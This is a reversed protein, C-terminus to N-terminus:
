AEARLVPCTIAKTVGGLSAIRNDLADIDATRENKQNFEARVTREDVTGAAVATAVENGLSPHIAHAEFTQNAGTLCYEELVVRRFQWTFDELFEAGTAADKRPESARGM